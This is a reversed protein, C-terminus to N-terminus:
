LLVGAILCGPIALPLLPWVVTEIATLIAVAVLSIAAALLVFLRVVFGVLRSFLNDVAARWRTELSSGPETVIRRWPEILTRLLQSVSFAELVGHLRPGFSTAVMTWGRGYWWAFFAVLMVLM